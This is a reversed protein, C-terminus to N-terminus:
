FTKSAESLEVNLDSKDEYRTHMYLSQVMQKEREFVHYGSM